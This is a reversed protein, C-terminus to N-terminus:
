LMRFRREARREAALDLATKGGEVVPEHAVAFGGIAAVHRGGFDRPLFAGGRKEVIRGVRARLRPGHQQHRREDVAGVNEIKRGVIRQRPKQRGLTKAGKQDIPRGGPLRFAAETQRMVDVASQRRHQSAHFRRRAAAALRGHEAIAHAAQQSQPEGLAALLAQAPSGHHGHISL